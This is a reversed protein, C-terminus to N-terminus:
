EIVDSEGSEDPMWVHQEKWDKDSASYSEKNGGDTPASVSRRIALHMIFLSNTHICLFRYANSHAEHEIM